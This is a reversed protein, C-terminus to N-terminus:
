QINWLCSLQTKIFILITLCAELLKAELKVNFTFFTFSALRKSLKEIFKIPRFDM